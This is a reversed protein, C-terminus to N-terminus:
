ATAGLLLLGGDKATVLVRGELETTKGDRRLTVQDVALAPGASSGLLLVAACLTLLHSGVPSLLPRFFGLRLSASVCLFATREAGGRRQPSKSWEGSEM